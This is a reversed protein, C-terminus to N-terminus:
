KRNVKGTPHVPMLYVLNVGMDKLDPLRKQAAALTGEPTFNRVFIQYLVAERVWLPAVAIGAQATPTAGPFLDFGAKTPTTGPSTSATTATAVTTAPVTPAITATPLAVTVTPAVTATAGSNDCAALLAVLLLALSILSAFRSVHFTFRSSMPVRADQSR